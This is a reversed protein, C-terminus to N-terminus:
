AKKSEAQSGSGYKCIYEERLGRFDRATCPQFFDSFWGRRHSSMGIDELLQDTYGITEFTMCHGLEGNSLYRLRSFAVNLAIEAEMKEVTPLAILKDLYATAWIAQCEAARWKNSVVVHNIFVISDDHLPAIGRHLRYPTTTPSKHHHPPPNKLLAFRNLVAQEAEKELEAWKQARDFDNDELRHPLGLKVRLEQDFFDLSPTWGTGCLIADSRIEEGSKLRVLRHKLEFIEDHYIEVNQAIIEWFDARNLLGGSGNQWFFSDYTLLNRLGRGSLM